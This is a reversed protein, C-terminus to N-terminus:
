RGDQTRSHEPILLSERRGQSFANIGGPALYVIHVFLLLFCSMDSEPAHSVWPQGCEVEM